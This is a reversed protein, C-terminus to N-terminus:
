FMKIRSIEGPRKQSPEFNFLGTKIIIQKNGVGRWDGPGLGWRKILFMEYKRVITKKTLRGKVPVLLINKLFKSM